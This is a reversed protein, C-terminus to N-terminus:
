WPSGRQCQLCAQFEFVRTSDDFPRVKEAKKNTKVSLGSPDEMRVGKGTLKSGSSWGRRVVGDVEGVGKGMGDRVRMEHLVQWWAVNAILEVIREAWKTGEACVRSTKQLDRCDLLVHMASIDLALVNSHLRILM